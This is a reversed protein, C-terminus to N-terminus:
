LSNGVSQGRFGCGLFSAALHAFRPYNQGYFNEANLVSSTLIGTWRGGICFSDFSNFGVITDVTEKQIEDLVFERAVISSDAYKKDFLVNMRFYM